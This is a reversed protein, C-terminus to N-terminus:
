AHPAAADDAPAGVWREAWASLARITADLEAGAQTLEYAVRVPSGADVVRRLVGENELERLRESLLRDSLGPVDAAIENFRRPGSLLTRIIAGTWRRGVLEIARHFRPCFSSLEVGDRKIQNEPRSLDRRATTGKPSYTVM